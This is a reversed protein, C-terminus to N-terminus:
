KEEDTWGYLADDYSEAFGYSFIMAAKSENTPERASLTTIWAIPYPGKMAHPPGPDIWLRCGGEKESKWIRNQITDMLIERGGEEDILIIDILGAKDAIEGCRQYEKRQDTIDREDM